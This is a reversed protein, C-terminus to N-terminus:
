IRKELGGWGGASMLLVVTDEDTNEQLYKELLESSPMYKVNPQTKAIAEVIDKGYIRKDKPISKKVPVHPILVENINDFVGPYWTLTERNENLAVRVNFVGIIRKDPFKQHIANCSAKAKVPSHAFDDIILAGKKSKGILELRRKIGKFTTIAKKVDAMDLGLIDAMAISALMNEVNHLGYMTTEFTALSEGHKLVQFTTKGGIFDVNQVTYDASVSHDVRGVPIESGLQGSVAYTFAKSGLIDTSQQTPKLSTNFEDIIAQNNKGLKNILMIGDNKRTIKALKRFADIYENETKYVDVHDWEASTLITYTPKYYVFKPEMDYGWVSPFEDGEVVSYQDTKKNGDEDDVEKSALVGTDFNLPQGGGMFSLNKDAQQLIWAMIWTTTTKGYSGTVVISNKAVIYKQVLYAFGVLKKKLRKAELYEPNEKNRLLVSGGIVVLDAERVNELNCKQETYEIGANDLISKMPEWVKNHEYGTVKWGKRKMMVALQGVASGAIGIFHIHKTQKSSKSKETEQM